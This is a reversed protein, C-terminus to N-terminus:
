EDSNHAKSPNDLLRICSEVLKKGQEEDFYAYKEDRNASAEARYSHTQTITVGKVKVKVQIQHPHENSPDDQKRLKIARQGVRVIKKDLVTIM